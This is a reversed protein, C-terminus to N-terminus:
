PRDTEDNPERGKHLKLAVGCLSNRERHPITFRSDAGDLLTQFDLTGAVATREEHDGILIVHELLPLSARLNAVKKRYLTETTVLVQAAGMTLRTHIPEPGFASFLTCAVSRHKLTGLVSIYLEPVRGALAFVRAPEDYGLGRLVNAFRSTLERLQAYTFDRRAGNRGIWRLALRSGNDAAHRDVAEHAINLGGSPLNSLGRSAQEWRFAAYERPYDALNPAVRVSASKRIIEPIM